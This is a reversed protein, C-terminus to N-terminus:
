LYPTSAAGPADRADQARAKIDACYFDFFTTQHSWDGARLVDALKAGRLFAASASAARTSGPPAHVGALRLVRALLRRLGSTTLPGFPSSADFFLFSHSLGLHDRAALLSRISAVPCLSPDAEFAYIYIPPGMHGPRDTKSLASPIFRVAHGLITMHGSDVRLSALESLRRCSAMAVLFATQLLVDRLPLPRTWQSFLSFVDDPNWIPFVRRAPPRSLFIARMLRRVNADDGFAVGDPGPPLTQSIASRHIGITNWQLGLDYLHTLYDMGMMVTIPRGSLGRALLYEEFKVWAREYRDTTGDRWGTTLLRFTNDEM